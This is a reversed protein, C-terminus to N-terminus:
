SNATSSISSVSARPATTSRSTSPAETESTIRTTLNSVSRPANTQIEGDLNLLLERCQLSGLRREYEAAANTRDSAREQRQQAGTIVHDRATPQALSGSIKELVLQRM